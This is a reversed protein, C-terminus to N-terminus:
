PQVYLLTPNDLYSDNHKIAWKGHTRLYFTVQGAEGVTATVPHTPQYADYIYKPESWLITDAFPDTGGNPDLGVQFSFAYPDGCSLPPPGDEGCSWAHAYVLGTVTAGAELDRVVQYAGAHQKRFFTFCMWAYHGQYIRHPETDYPYENPIPRCEPRGYDGEEWWTVWGEPTFIEGYEKGNFTDRTWNGYNPQENDVPRGIGEFGPNALLNSHTYVQRSRVVLPLYVFCTHPAAQITHTSVVRAGERATVELTNTLRGTYEAAVTVVVQQVWGGGASSITPTWVLQGGPLVVTGAMGEDTYVHQPLTDTIVAHLDTAGNHTVVLTYTLREGSRVSVAPWSQQQVTLTLAHSQADQVPATVVARVQAPAGAMFVSLAIGALAAAIFLKHFHTM